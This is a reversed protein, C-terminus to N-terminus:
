FWNKLSVTSLRQSTIAVSQGAGARTAALRGASDAFGLPFIEQDVRLRDPMRLGIPVM